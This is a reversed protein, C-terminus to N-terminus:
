FGSRRTVIGQERVGIGKRKMNKRVRKRKKASPLFELRKKEHSEASKTLFVPYPANGSERAGSKASQRLGM